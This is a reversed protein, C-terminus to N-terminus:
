SGASKCCAMGPSVCCWRVRQVWRVWWLRAGNEGQAHVRTHRAARQLILDCPLDDPLLEVRATAGDSWACGKSDVAAVGGVAPAAVTNALLRTRDERTQVLLRYCAGRKTLDVAAHSVFTKLDSDLDLSRSRDTLDGKIKSYTNGRERSYLRTSPTLHAAAAMAWTCRYRRLRLGATSRMRYNSEQGGSVM